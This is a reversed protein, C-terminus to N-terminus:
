RLEKLVGNIEVFKSANAEFDAQNQENKFYYMRGYYLYNFKSTNSIQERSVPDIVMKEVNESFFNAGKEIQSLEIRINQGDFIHELPIPNCGGPKGVSPLFIRVNCSICILDDGKKIYGMDGCIACADYVAVPALKDKFRNLLLFRIKRGSDTIYAYRHLENDILAKADFIFEGNKPEVIIAESIKPPKSAVLLYFLSISSILAALIVSFGSEKLIKVRVSKSQRYAIIENYNKLAPMNKLSILACLICLICIAIPLFDSAYILKASFSLLNTHTQIIGDQMLSLLFAGLSQAILLILATAFIIIKVPKSLNKLMSRMLLLIFVSLMFGFCTIFLNSLSFSDLLDGSFITFDMSIVRYIFGYTLALLFSLCLIFYERKFVYTLPLILLLIINFAEFFVKVNDISIVSAFASFCIFGCLIGFIVSLISALKNAGFNIFSLAFFLPLIAISVHFFFVSM